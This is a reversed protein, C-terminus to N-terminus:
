CYVMMGFLTHQEMARIEERWCDSHIHTYANWSIALPGLMSTDLLSNNVCDGAIADEEGTGIVIAQLRLSVLQVFTVERENWGPCLM